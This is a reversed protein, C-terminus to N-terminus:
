NDELGAPVQDSLFTSQMQAFIYSATSEFILFVPIEDDIDLM